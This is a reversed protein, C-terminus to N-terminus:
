NEHQQSNTQRAPRSTATLSPKKCKSPLAIPLSIKLSLPCHDSIETFPQVTMMGVEKMIDHSCLFYDM